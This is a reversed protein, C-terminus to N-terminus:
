DNQETQDFFCGLMERSMDEYQYILLLQEAFIRLINNAFEELEKKTKGFHFKETTDIQLLAFPEINHTESNEARLIIGIYQQLQEERGESGEHFVFYKWIEERSSLVVINNPALEKRKKLFHIYFYQRKTSEDRYNFCQKQLRSASTDPGDKNYSAIMFCYKDIGVATKNDCVICKPHVNHKGKCPKETDNEWSLIRSVTIQHATSHTALKLYEYVFHSLKVSFNTMGFIKSIKEHYEDATDNITPLNKMLYKRAESLGAQISQLVQRQSEILSIYLRKDKVRKKQYVNAVFFMISVIAVALIFLVGARSDSFPYFIILFSCPIIAFILTMARSVFLEYMAGCFKGLSTQKQAHSRITDILKQRLVKAKM